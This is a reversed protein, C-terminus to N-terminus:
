LRFSHLTAQQKNGTAETKDFVRGLVPEIGLLEFLDYEAFLVDQKPRGVFDYLRYKDTFDSYASMASFSQNKKKVTNLNMPNTGKYSGASMMFSGEIVYLSDAQQYPLPKLFVLNVLSFVSFLLTLCLALSLVVVLYYQKSRSFQRYAGRVPM